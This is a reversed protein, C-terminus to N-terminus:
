AFLKAVGTINDGGHGAANAAAYIGHAAMSAPMSANVAAATEVIYRFDKEVLAIPFTPAFNRAVISGAAGKAAPSMVPLDGLLAAAKTRDLGCKEVMGLIEALAAVQIGFLGNVALKMAMGHGVPGVHHIAAGAASLFNHTRAFTAPDGGVLYILHGAEAQLRSGVVPADLFKAGRKEIERALNGVWALSLTSSEVAIAGEALGHVAGTNEDLWIARSADDDTVMGIVIDAQEAAERPS